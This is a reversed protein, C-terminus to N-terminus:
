RGGRKKPPPPVSRPPASRVSRAPLEEAMTAEAAAEEESRKAEACTECVRGDKETPPDTRFNASPRPRMNCASKFKMGATDSEAIFHWVAGGGDPDNSVFNWPSTNPM